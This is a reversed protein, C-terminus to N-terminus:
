SEPEDPIEAVQTWSGDALLKRWIRGQDDVIFMYVPGTSFEIVNIKAM